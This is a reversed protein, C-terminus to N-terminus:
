SHNTKDKMLEQYENLAADLVQLAFIVEPDNIDKGKSIKNLKLGLEEIKKLM